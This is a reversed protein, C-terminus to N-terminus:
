NKLPASFHIKHSLRALEIMIKSLVTKNLETNEIQKKPFTTNKTKRHKRQKNNTRHNLNFTVKAPAM